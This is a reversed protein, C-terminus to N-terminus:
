AASRELASVWAALAAPSVLRRRGVKFTKLRGANIENYVTQRSLGASTMVEPISLGAIPLAGQRETM